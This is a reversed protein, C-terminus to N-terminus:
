GNNSLQHKQTVIILRLYILEDSHYDMYQINSLSKLERKCNYNAM